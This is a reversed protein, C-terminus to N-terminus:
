GAAFTQLWAGGVAIVTGFLWLITAVTIGQGKSLKMVGICGTVILVAYWLLFLDIRAFFAHMWVPTDPGSLVLDLGLTPTMTAADEPRRIVPPNMNLIVTAYITYLFPRIVAAAAAVGFARGFTVGAGGMIAGLVWIVLATIAIMVLLFISSLYALISGFLMMNEQMRQLQEPSIESGQARLTVMTSEVLIRQTIPMNYIAMGTSFVAIWVMIWVSLMPKADLARWCDKPAVIANLFPGFVASISFSGASEPDATTEAGAVRELSAEADAAAEPAGEADAAPEPTVDAPPDPPAQPDLDDTM